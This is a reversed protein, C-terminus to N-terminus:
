TFPQNLTNNYWNEIHKSYMLVPLPRAVQPEGRRGDIAHIKFF